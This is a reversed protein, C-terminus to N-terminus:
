TGGDSSPLDVRVESLAAEDIQVPYQKRLDDLLAEERARIENQALRVRIAREAEEFSRDHGNTKGTLKVVYYRGNAKVVRPLVTGASPIEFVAARVEDPLRPNAGRPDDPPGVFGFDGALDLPVAEKARPDISRTRVLEGWQIPTATKAADLVTNAAGESSAVIASARRREPDRFDARHAEYDARVEVEPIESPGPLGDRAKKLMADRLIERIEQQTVPDKDYGKDRAVDALLMVDIMEGLLEERREPARYRMRDFQDMHELAAVFEGVTISREGVRALVQASQEATLGAIAGAESTDPNSNRRTSCAITAMAFALLYPLHTHISPRSGTGNPTPSRPNTLVADSVPASLLRNTTHLRRTPRTCGGSRGEPTAKTAIV